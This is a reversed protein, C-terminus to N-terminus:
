CKCRYTGYSYAAPQPPANNVVKAGSEPVSPQSTRRRVGNETAVNQQKRRLTSTTEVDGSKAVNEVSNEGKTKLSQYFESNKTSATQIGGVLL